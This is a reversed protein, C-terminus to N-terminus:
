IMIGDNADDSDDAIMDDDADADDDGDDDDDGADDGDDVLDVNVDRVVVDVDADSDSVRSPDWSVRNDGM